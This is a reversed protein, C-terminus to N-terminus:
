KRRRRQLTSIAALALSRDSTEETFSGALAITRVVAGRKMEGHHELCDHRLSLLCGAGRANLHECLARAVHDGADEQLVLRHTCADVLQAIAGLGVIRDRPQYIVSAFGRGITLHHPCVVHTSLREIIVLPASKATIADALLARPDLSYGDLLEDAFLSAVRTGTGRAEPHDGHGLARLFADIAAAAAKRDM